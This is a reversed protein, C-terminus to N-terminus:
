PDLVRLLAEPGTSNFAVESLTAVTDPEPRRVWPVVIALASLACAGVAVLALRSDVVRTPRRRIRQIVKEAVDIPPAVADRTRSGLQGLLDFENMM